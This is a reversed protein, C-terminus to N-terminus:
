NKDYKILEVQGSEYLRVIGIQILWKIEKMINLKSIDLKESDSIISKISAKRYVTIIDIIKKILSICIDVLASLNCM